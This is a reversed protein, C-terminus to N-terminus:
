LRWSWGLHRSNYQLDSTRFSIYSEGENWDVGVLLYDQKSAVVWHLGLWFFHSDFLSPVSRWCIPGVIDQHYEWGSNNHCCGRTRAVVSFRILSLKLTLSDRKM